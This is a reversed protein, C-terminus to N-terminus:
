GNAPVSEGVVDNASGNAPIEGKPQGIGLDSLPQRFPTDVDVWGRNIAPYLPERREILSSSTAM